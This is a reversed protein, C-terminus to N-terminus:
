RRSKEERLERIEARPREIEQKLDRVLEATQDPERSKHMEAALRQKAEQVEREMAGAKEMLQQALDHAVTPGEGDRRFVGPVEALEM